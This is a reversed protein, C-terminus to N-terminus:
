STRMVKPLSELIKKSTAKGIIKENIIVSPALACNGLCYVPELTIQGDATTQHFNINLKDKLTDILTNAGCAQCAEARCVKIINRGPKSQRYYHYFTIVGHVEAISLNLKEAIQSTQERPIYGLEDQISNLIDLLKEPAASHKEIVRNAVEDISKM